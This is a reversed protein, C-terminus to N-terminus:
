LLILDAADKRQRDILPLCLSRRLGEPLSPSLTRNCLATTQTSSSKEEGHHPNRLKPSHHSVSRPFSGPCFHPLPSICIIKKGREELLATQERFTTNVCPSSHVMTHLHFSSVTAEGGFGLYIAVRGELLLESEHLVLLEAFM